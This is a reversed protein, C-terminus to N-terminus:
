EPLTAEVTEHSRSATQDSPMRTGTQYLIPVPIASTVSEAAPNGICPIASELWIVVPTSDLNNARAKITAASPDCIAASLTAITIASM